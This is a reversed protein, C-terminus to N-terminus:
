ATKRVKIRGDRECRKFQKAFEDDPLGTMKAADAQNISISWHSNDNVTTTNGAAQKPYNIKVPSPGSYAPAPIPPVDVGLRPISPMSVSLPAMEPSTLRPIEPLELKPIVPAKFQLIEPKQVNLTAIEPLEIEPMKAINLEPLEPAVFKPVKFQLIEPRQMRLAEFKPAKLEPISPVKLASLKPAKLEAMEPITVKLAAIDPAKLIIPEPAAVKLPAIKAAKMEPIEPANFPLIEPVKPLIRGATNPVFLEARKEGVIYPKDKEVPGGTARFFVSKFGALFGEAATGSGPVLINFIAAMVGTAAAELAMNALMNKFALGINDFTNGSQQLANAMVGGWARGFSVADDMMGTTTKHNIGILTESHIMAAQKRKRDYEDKLIEQAEFQERLADTEAKYRNKENEIDYAGTQTTSPSYISSFANEAQMDKLKNQFERVDSLIKENNLKTTNAKEANKLHWLAVIGDLGLLDTDRIKGIFEQEAEAMSKEYDNRIFSIQQNKFDNNLSDMLAAHALMNEQDVALIKLGHAKEIQVIAAGNDKYRTKADEFWDEIASLRKAQENVLLDTQAQNAERTAERLQSALAKANELAAAQTAKLDEKDQKITPPLVMKLKTLNDDYKPAVKSKYGPLEPEFARDYDTYDRWRKARLEDYRKKIAMEKLLPQDDIGNMGVGMGVIPTGRKEIEKMRQIHGQYAKETKNYYDDRLIKKAILQKNLIDTDQKYQYNEENIKDQMGGRRDIQEKLAEINEFSMGEIEKLEKRIAMVGMIVAGVASFIGFTTLTSMVAARLGVQAATLSATAATQAATAQAIGKGAATVAKAANVQEKGAMKAANAAVTYEAKLSAGVSAAGIAATSTTGAISSAKAVNAAAVAHSETAIKVMKAAQSKQRETNALAAQLAAKESKASANIMAVDAATKATMAKRAASAAIKEQEVAKQMSAKLAEAGQANQVVMSAVAAGVNAYRMQANAASMAGAASEVNYKAVQVAKIAGGGGGAFAVAGMVGQMAALGKLSATLMGILHIFNKLWSFIAAYAAVKVIMIITNRCAYLAKSVSIFSEIVGGMWEAIQQKNQKIWENFEKLQAIINPFAIDGMIRQLDMWNNKMIQIQGVYTNKMREIQGGYREKMGEFMADVAKRGDVSINGINAIQQGTLHLKERLIDYAPIGRETLQLLEEYYVKGKTIIQGLARSIGILAEEGGLSSSADVLIQMQEVTPQLNMATMRRFSDITASLNVPLDLAFKNLKGFWEEGHGKTVTDLSIKLVQLNGAVDLLKKGAYVASTGLAILGLNAATSDMFKPMLSKFSLSDLTRQMESVQQRAYKNATKLGMNLKTDRASIEVWTELLRM